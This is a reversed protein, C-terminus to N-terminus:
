PFVGAVFWQSDNEGPYALLWLRLGNKTQVTWYDRTRPDTKCHWPPSLREPGKVTKAAYTRHRWEFRQPPRGPKLARLREPPQFLRLPRTRRFTRWAPELSGDVAELSKFELEPLHADASAFKRVHDFGLRNGLTSILKATNEEAHAEKGLVAQQPQVPEIYEAALRFWDAGFEIKLDDLPRSFQQLISGRETCPRAFGISLDHDGTDVCRITLNFKRAGKQEQQLRECVSNALRMLVGEIDSKYGIPEPLTMRAAYVPTAAAPTVPDPEQGLSGALSKTLTLGFRRALESSKVAYLQGITKLGTRALEAAITHDIDLAAIPLSAIADSTRGTEAITVKQRAFRALARAAGKTDAVGIRAHIQMDKLRECAHSGM